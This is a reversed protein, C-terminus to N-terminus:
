CARRAIRELTTWREARLSLRHADGTEALLDLTAGAIRLRHRGIRDVRVVIEDFEAAPLEVRFRDGARVVSATYAYYEAAAANTTTLEVRRLRGAGTVLYDEIVDGGYMSHEFLLSVREGDPVVRCLTTRGTTLDTAIVAPAGPSALAGVTLLLALPAVALWRSGTVM